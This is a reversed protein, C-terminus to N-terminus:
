EPAHCAKEDLDLGGSSTSAVQFYKGTAHDATVDITFGPDVSSTWCQEPFDGGKMEICTDAFIESSCDNEFILHLSAGDKADGAQVEITTLNVCSTADGKDCIDGKPQVACSSTPNQEADLCTPEVDGDVSGSGCGVLLIVLWSLAGLNRM